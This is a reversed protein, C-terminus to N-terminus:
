TGGVIMMELKIDEPATDWYLAINDAKEVHAWQDSHHDIQFYVANHRRPLEQPPIAHHSLRVGPLARAILIPLTERSGLKAISVIGDIMPQPSEDTECVLYYQNRGQLMAPNLEAAYYTGDYLLEVIYEPGATIEDLLRVTLAQAGAFCGWLDRHDYVLLSQSRDDTEGMANVRLSFTSLEGILQRIVGYVSWPHAQGEQVLHSLIPSYRNLTRLALLYVMDRAGFEATQIGRSQKYDELQNGRTAIQDHIERVIKTLTDSASLNLCPPVYHDSILVEDGSREISTVPIVEYDSIQQIENGLFVKLVYYLRRMSATPGGQYIDGVEEEDETTAFRTTVDSIHDLRGSVTVNDGNENLRRLGLYVPLPKSGELWDEQFSRIEIM